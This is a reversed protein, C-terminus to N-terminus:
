PTGRRDCGGQGTPQATSRFTGHAYQQDFVVGL